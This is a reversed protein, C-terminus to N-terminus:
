RRRKPPVQTWEDANDRMMREAYSVIAMPTRQLEAALIGLASRLIRRERMTWTNRRSRPSPSMKHVRNCISSVSRGLHEACLKAGLLTYNQYLWADEEPQWYRRQGSTRLGLKRAKTHVAAPTRGLYEACVAPGHEAYNLRLLHLHQETWPQHHHECPTDGFAIRHAYARAQVSGITRGLRIACANVGDPAYQRLLQM